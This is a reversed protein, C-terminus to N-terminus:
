TTNLIVSINLLRVYWSRTTSSYRLWQWWQDVLLQRTDELRQWKLSNTRFIDCLPNKTFCKDFFNTLLFHWTSAKCTSIFFYNIDPLLCTNPFIPVVVGRDMFCISCFLSFYSFLLFFIPLFSMRVSTLQVLQILIFFNASQELLHRMTTVWHSSHKNLM